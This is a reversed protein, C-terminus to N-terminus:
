GALCTGDPYQGLVYSSQQDGARIAVVCAPGAAVAALLAGAPGIDDNGAIRVVPDPYGAGILATRLDGPQEASTVLDLIRTDGAQAREADAATLERRRGIDAILRGCVPDAADCAVSVSKREGSSAAKAAIGAAAVVVAVGGAAVLWRRRGPRSTVAEAIVV